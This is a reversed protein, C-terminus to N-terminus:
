GHLALLDACTGKDSKALANSKVPYVGFRSRFRTSFACTARKLPKHKESHPRGGRSFYHLPEHKEGRSLKGKLINGKM